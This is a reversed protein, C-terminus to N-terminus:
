NLCYRYSPSCTSTSNHFLATFPLSFLTRKWRRCRFVSVKSWTYFYIHTFLSLSSRWRHFVWTLDDQFTILVTWTVGSLCLSFQAQQQKQDNFCCFVGEPGEVHERGARWGGTPEWTWTLSSESPSHWIEEPSYRLPNQNLDKKENESRRARPFVTRCGSSLERQVRSLNERWTWRGYASGIHQQSSLPRSAGSTHKILFVFQASHMGPSNEVRPPHTLTNKSTVHTNMAKEVNLMDRRGLAKFTVFWYMRSWKLITRQSGKIGKCNHLATSWSLFFFFVCIFLPLRSCFRSFWHTYM